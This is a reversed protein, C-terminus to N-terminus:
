LLAAAAIRTTTKGASGTIGVIKRGEGQARWRRAYARGLDGLATLTSPVRVVAVGPPPTVEREVLVLSAGARAAADLHDHGDHTEGRLAVFAAGPRIARTDTSI